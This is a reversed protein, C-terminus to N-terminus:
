TAHDEGSKSRQLFFDFTYEKIDLNGAVTERSVVSLLTLPQQLELNPCGVEQDEAVGISRIITEEPVANIWRVVRTGM